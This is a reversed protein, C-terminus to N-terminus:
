RIVSDEYDVNGEDDYFVGTMVDGDISAWMFGYAKDDVWRTPQDDRRALERLKAAAGSVIFHTGCTPELWERNHDHGAFYVQAKGCVSEEIIGKLAEGRGVIGGDFNGANGHDGNSIYPHHGMVIKWPADSKAIAAKLWAAQEATPAPPKLIANEVVMSNTDLVFIELPGKRVSYYYDPMNWKMSKATYEVQHSGRAFDTGLGGVGYDHNGLTVYFPFDLAAYPTEFKTDFQADDVDSVGSEYINDGLYLAFECGREACVKAVAAAVKAQAAEGTGGDGLVVFNLPEEGGSSGADDNASSGGSAGGNTGGSAGSGDNAGSSESTAGGNAGGGNDNQGANSPNGAGMGSTDTGCAAFLLTALLFRRTHQMARLM